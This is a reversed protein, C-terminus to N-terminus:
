SRDISSVARGPRWTEIVLRDGEPHITTRVVRRLDFRFLHFSEPPGAAEGTGDAAQPRDLDAEAAATLAAVYDEIFGPDTVEEAVADLKVDGDRMTSDGPNGHLSCRGDRLLDRAKVSGDMMGALLEGSHFQVETGSVRPSGDSRLTALVHHRHAELLRRAAAALEPAEDSFEDWTTM